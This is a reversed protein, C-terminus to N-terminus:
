FSNNIQPAHEYPFDYLYETLEEAIFEGEMRYEDLLFLQTNPVSKEPVFYKGKNVHDKEHLGLANRVRQTTNDYQYVLDEFHLYHTRANAQRRENKRMRRYYSCFERADCPYPAPQNDRMKWVYKNLLFIDRPDREVIFCTTNDGFYSDLRWANFPLLLQDLVLGTKDRALPELAELIFTQAAAYFENSTPLSILMEKYLLPKTPKLRGHSILRVLKNFALHPFAGIGRREQYYWYNTSSFQTLSDIFKEVADMFHPGLVNKYNGVWWLPKDYLEKMQAQFTRLAEDSRIANNGRLLKDELDFVGNPCHLFVYEFDGHPSYFGKMESVLDTVASSGSGMYGTPIVIKTDFQMM